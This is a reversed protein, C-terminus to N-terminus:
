QAAHPNPIVMNGGEQATKLAEAVEPPMYTEDHKALVKDALVHKNDIIEGIAIIGQGERFLDPLIGTYKVSVENVTDSIDFLVTLGDVDRRVSGAKVLGGARIQAGAPAEGSVIQTPSYFYMLNANLAQFAFFSAIGVGVFILAVWLMRKRRPTM